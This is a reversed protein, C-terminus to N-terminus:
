EEGTLGDMSDGMDKSYKAVKWSGEVNELEYKYKNEGLIQNKLTCTCSSKEGETECTVDGVLEDNTAECGSDMSGKVQEEASGTALTLAKECDGSSLANVFSETTGEPSSAGGGGCATMALAAVAGLVLTRLKM